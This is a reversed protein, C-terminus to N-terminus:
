KGSWFINRKSPIQLSISTTFLVQGEHMLPFESPQPEKVKIILENKYIEKATEVIEAGAKKYMEDPFGIKTGANTQVQVSHGAEVFSRVTDPTAGVRYEDKKVEKPVGIKTKM